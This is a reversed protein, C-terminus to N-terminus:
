KRKKHKRKNLGKNPANSYEDSDIDDQYVDSEASSDNDNLNINHNDMNHGVIARAFSTSSASFIRESDLQNSGSNHRKREQKPAILIDFGKVINGVNFTEELYSGEYAYIKREIAVLSKEAQKKALAYENLTREADALMDGTTADLSLEDLKKRRNKTQEQIEKEQQERRQRVSKPLSLGTITVMEIGTSGVPEWTTSLNNM